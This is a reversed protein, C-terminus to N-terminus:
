NENDQNLNLVQFRSLRDNQGWFYNARIWILDSTKLKKLNDQFVSFPLIASVIWWDRTCYVTVSLNKFILSSLSISSFDTYYLSGACHLMESSTKNFFSCMVWSPGTAATESTCAASPALAARPCSLSASCHFPPLSGQQCLQPLDNAIRQHEPSLFWPLAASSSAQGLQEDHQQIKLSWLGLSPKPFGGLWPLLLGQAWWRDWFATCLLAMGLMSKMTNPSPQSPSHGVNPHTRTRWTSREPQMWQNQTKMQSQYVMRQSFQWCPSFSVWPLSRPQQPQSLPELSAPSLGGEQLVQVQKQSRKGKCLQSIPLIKRGSFAAPLVPYSQALAHLDWDRLLSPPKKESLTPWSFLPMLCSCPLSFCPWNTIEQSTTTSFM